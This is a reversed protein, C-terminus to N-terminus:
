KDDQHISLIKVMVVDPDAETLLPTVYMQMSNPMSDCIVFAYWENSITSGVDHTAKRLANLQKFHEEPDGGEAM